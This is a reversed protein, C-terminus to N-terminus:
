CLGLYETILQATHRVESESGTTLGFPEASGTLFCRWIDDTPHALGVEVKQYDSLTGIRLSYPLVFTRYYRIQDQAPHVEVIERGLVLGLGMAGLLISLLVIVPGSEQAAVVLFPSMAICAIGFLYMLCGKKTVLKLPKDSRLSTTM